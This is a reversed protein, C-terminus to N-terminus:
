STKPGEALSKAILVETEEETFHTISTGAEYLM